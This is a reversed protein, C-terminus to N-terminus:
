RRPLTPTAASSSTDNVTAVPSNTAMAPGDPLPLVVSRLRMPQRSVGVAPSTRISPSDTLASEEPPRASRLARLSPKTKWVKLRM